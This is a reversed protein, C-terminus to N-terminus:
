AIKKRLSEKARSLLTRCTANTINLIESMEDTDFGEIYHLTLVHHYREKLLKLANLVKQMQENQHVSAALVESDDIAVEPQRDLATYRQEKKFTTLSNNIVIRKLWAGFTATGKFTGLKSFATIFSEQMVDEAVATDKVIRLATNYM